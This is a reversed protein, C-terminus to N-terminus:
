AKVTSVKNPSQLQDSLIAVAVANGKSSYVTAGAAYGARVLVEVADMLPRSVVAVDTLKASLISM